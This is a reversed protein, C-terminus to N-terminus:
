VITKLRMHRRRFGRVEQGPVGERVGEVERVGRAVAGVAAGSLGCQNVRPVAEGFGANQIRRFSRRAPAAAGGRQQPM